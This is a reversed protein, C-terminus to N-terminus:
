KKAHRARVELGLHFTVPQARTRSPQATADEQNARAGPPKNGYGDRRRDKRKEEKEKKEKTFEKKIELSCPHQPEEDPFSRADLGKRRVNRTEDRIILDRPTRYGFSELGPRRCQGYGTPQLDCHLKGKRRPQCDKSPEGCYLM